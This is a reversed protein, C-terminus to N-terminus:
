LRSNSKPDLYTGSEGSNYNWAWPRPDAVMRLSEAHGDCAVLNFMGNHYGISTSWAWGDWAIPTRTPYNVQVDRAGGLRNQGDGCLWMYDGEDDKSAYTGGFWMVISPCDAMEATMGYPRLATMWSVHRGGSRGSGGEAIYCHWNTYETHYTYHGNYDQTYMIMSLGGQKLQNTCSIQQAKARANQLAPLLMAALIAIIAIVVLLEILTFVRVPSSERLKMM